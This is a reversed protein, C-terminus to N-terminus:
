IQPVNVSYGTKFELCEFTASFSMEERVDASMEFKLCAGTEKDIYINQTLNSFDKGLEIAYKSCDRGAVTASTKLAPLDKYQYYATLSVKISAFASDVQKKYYEKNKFEDNAVYEYENKTWDSNGMKDYIVVKKDDSFDYITQQNDTSFYFLDDNHGYSITMSSDGIVSSSVKMKIFVGDKKDAVYNINKQVNNTNYTEAITEKKSNEKCGAFAFMCPIILLVLAFTKFFKKM